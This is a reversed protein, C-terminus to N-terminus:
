FLTVDNIFAGEPKLLLKRYCQSSLAQEITLRVTTSTQTKGISIYHVRMIKM